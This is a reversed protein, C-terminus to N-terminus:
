SDHRARPVNQIRFKVLSTHCRFIRKKSVSPYTCHKGESILTLALSIAYIEIRVSKECREKEVMSKRAPM